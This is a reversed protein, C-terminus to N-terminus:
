VNGKAMNWWNVPYIKLAQTHRILAYQSSYIDRQHLVLQLM